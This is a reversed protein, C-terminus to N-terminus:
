NKRKAGSLSQFLALVIAGAVMPIDLLLDRAAESYPVPGNDDIVGAWGTLVEQVLEVDRIEEREIAKRIEEIRSQTLRKFQADFTAKEVRGGDAPVEIVVPWTYTDSQSIKFM